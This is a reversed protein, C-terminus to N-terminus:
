KRFLGCGTMMIEQSAMECLKKHQKKAVHHVKVLTDSGDDFIVKVIRM